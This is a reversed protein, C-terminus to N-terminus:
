RFELYHSDLGGGFSNGNLPSSQLGIDISGYSEVAKCHDSWDDVGNSNTTRGQHTLIPPKSTFM